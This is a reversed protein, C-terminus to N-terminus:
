TPELTSPEAVMTAVTQRRRLRRDWRLPARALTRDPSPSHNGASSYTPWKVSSSSTTNRPPSARSGASSRGQGAAHTAVVHRQAPAPLVHARRGKPPARRRSSECRARSETSSSMRGSAGRMARHPRSRSWRERRSVRKAMLLTFYGVNAGADVCVDGKALHRLVFESLVPEFAGRYKLVSGLNSGTPGGSILTGYETAMPADDSRSAAAQLLSRQERGRRGTPSTRRPRAATTPPGAYSLADPRGTSGCSALVFFNAPM